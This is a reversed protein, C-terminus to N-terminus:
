WFMIKNPKTLKLGHWGVISGPAGNNKRPVDHYLKILRFVSQALVLFNLIMILMSIPRWLGEPVCSPENFDNRTTYGENCRCFAEGTADALCSGGSDGYLPHNCGYVCGDVGEMSSGEWVSVVPRSHYPSFACNEQRNAIRGKPGAAAEKLA